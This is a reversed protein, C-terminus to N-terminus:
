LFKIRYINKIVKLFSLSANFMFTLWSVFNSLLTKSKLVGALWAINLNSAPTHLNNLSIKVDFTNNYWNM